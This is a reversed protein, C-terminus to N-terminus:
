HNKPILKNIKRIDIIKFNQFNLTDKDFNFGDQVILIGEPYQKNLYKNFIELGDTDETGDVKNKKIVFSTLYKNKELDFIAYSFNGQSSAILYHPPLLALGEIDFRIKDNKNTSGGIVSKENLNNLDFIHIGFDEEAVYLFGKKDDAVMGEVQSELKFKDTTEAKLKNDKIDIRIQFVNGKKDNVFAFLNDQNDEYLCFGYPKFKDGLSISYDPKSNIRGKQNIIFLDISKNTRNSGGLIDIKKGNLPINQRIDINNIRAYSVFQKEKGSLDYSHLGRKKNSGFIISESPKQKNYWVAPDDACDDTIKDSVEPTTEMDAYIIKRIKEQEAQAIKFATNSHAAEKNNIKSGGCSVSLILM